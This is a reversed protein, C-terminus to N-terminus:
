EGKRQLDAVACTLTPGAPAALDIQDWRAILGPGLRHGLMIRVGLGLREMLGAAGIVYETVSCGGGRRAARIEELRGVVRRNGAFVVRGLLHEVHVEPGLAAPKAWDHTVAPKRASNGGLRKRLQQEFAMAPTDDAVVDLRVAVGVDAVASFPIRMPRVDGLGLAHEVGEALSGLLPHLRRGITSAGMELGTVRPAADQRLGLVIGDVRGLELGHRDILQKDLVDRILDM